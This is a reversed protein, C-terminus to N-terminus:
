PLQTVPHGLDLRSLDGGHMVIQDAIVHLKVNETQSLRRMFGFARDESLGYKHMLIGQAQGIRHRADIAKLLNLDSRYRALVISAHAALVRAIDLDQSNMVQPENRYLNLAGMAPGRTFLHVSIVAGIGKDAAQPGWRPWRPDIRLDQSHLLGNEYVAEVCPGEDLDYQLHDVDEVRTETAGLTVFRHPGERETVGVADALGLKVITQTVTALGAHLDGSTETERTREIVEGLAFALDPM